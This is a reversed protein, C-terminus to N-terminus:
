RPPSGRGGLDIDIFESYDKGAYDHISSYLWDFPNEVLDSAVPNDHIYNILQWLYHYSDIQKSQFAGQFLPGVRDHRNNIAKTYSVSFKMMARSIDISRIRVEIEDQTYTEKVFILLHYHTPMLCYAKLEVFPLLYRDINFLM